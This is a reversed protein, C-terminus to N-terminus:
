VNRLKGSGYNLNQCVFMVSINLHHSDRSALNNLNDSNEKTTMALVMLDDLVKLTADGLKPKIDAITPIGKTCDIFECTKLTSTTAKDRIIEKIKDYSPQEATYLYLLKDPTPQIVKDINDIVEVIKHTKGSQTPGCITMMFPHQLPLVVNHLDLFHNWSFFSFIKKLYGFPTTTFDDHIVCKDFTFKFKKVNEKVAISQGNERVFERYTVEIEKKKDSVCANINDFTIRDKAPGKLTFGKVHVIEDKQKQETGDKLFRTYENTRYSYSKPGTTCFQEIWKESTDKEDTMEGLYGGTPISKGKEIDEIFIVSDMDYYLVNEGLKHLYKFLELRAYATVFSAVIVNRNPLPTLSCGKRHTTRAINDSIFDLSTVDISRDNVLELLDDRSDIFSVVTTDENQALKGWLLNLLAKMVTPQGPNYSIKEADLEVQEHELYDLIYEQLKKKKVVGNEDLCHKPMGSSEQKLKM